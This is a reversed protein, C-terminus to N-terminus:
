LPLRSSKKLFNLNEAEYQLKMKIINNKKLISAIAEIEYNHVNCYHIIADLYEIRNDKVLKEINSVHDVVFNNGIM